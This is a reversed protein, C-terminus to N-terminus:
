RIAAWRGDWRVAVRAAPCSRAACRSWRSMVRAARRCRDAQAAADLPRRVAAARRGDVRKRMAAYVEDRYGLRDVLGADLAEQATRPGTDALERVREADIGRGAAIANVAETYISEVLRDLAERHADTFETRMFRDAANKYEYRQELEPEIGLKDLAGRLFTTEVGVGLLGLGGGPQLWIEDFATALMYASTDGAEEGFSEAWAVTPKGSAAFAQVGLRLEQM